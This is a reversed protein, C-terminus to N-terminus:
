TVVQGLQTASRLQAPGGEDDEDKEVDEDTKAEHWADYRQKANEPM